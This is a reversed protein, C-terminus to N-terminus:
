LSEGGIKHFIYIPNQYIADFRYIVKMLIAMKVANQWDM